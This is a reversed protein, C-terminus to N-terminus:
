LFPCVMNGHLTCFSTFLHSDCKWHCKFLILLFCPRVLKYLVSSDNGSSGTSSEPFFWGAKTKQAKRVSLQSDFYKRHIFVTSCDCCHHRWMAAKMSFCRFSLEPTFKQQKRRRSPKLEQNAARFVVRVCCWLPLNGRRVWDFTFNMIAHPSSYRRLCTYSAFLARVPICSPNLHSPTDALPPPWFPALLLKCTHCSEVM